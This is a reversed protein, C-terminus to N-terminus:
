LLELLANEVPNTSFLADPRAAPPTSSATRALPAPVSQGFKSALLNFDITDVTQDFNFDGQSWRRGTLSFNAALLNFDVTDVTKDLNADGNLTFRVLISTNDVSQGAFTAPFSAYLDTAEAIGPATGPTTAAVSSNIGVGSWSGSAYGSALYGGISGIPSAGTYDVIMANEALDLKGSAGVTLSSLLPVVTGGAAVSAQGDIQLPRSSVRAGSGTINLAAGNAIITKGAGSM